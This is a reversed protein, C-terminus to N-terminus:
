SSPQQRKGRLYAALEDHGDHSAWNEPLAQIKTDVIAPDAGINLLHDVMERRGQLAAYHLATGAFDFGAPISNIRAGHALLVDVASLQDWAAAYVLANDVIQQSDNQVEASIELKDFPWSIRGASSTLSGNQNFSREIQGLDGTGAAKRLNDVAAGRALLLRLCEESGWYLAEELPSWRGNGDIAAGLDLLTTVARANNVGAAAILPGTLEAGHEALTQILQELSDVVPSNLVLCQLLTPHDCSSRATALGPEGALLERLSEVDGRILTQKAPHFRPDMPAWHLLSTNRM